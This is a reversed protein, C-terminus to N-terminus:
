SQLHARGSQVIAAEMMVPSKAAEVLIELAEDMLYRREVEGPIVIVSGPMLLLLSGDNTEPDIHMNEGPGVSITEAQHQLPSLGEDERAARVSEAFADRAPQAAEDYAERAERLAVDRKDKAPITSEQYHKHAKTADAGERGLAEVYALTADRTSAEYEREISNVTDHYLRRFPEIAEDLANAATTLRTTAGVASGQQEEQGRGM